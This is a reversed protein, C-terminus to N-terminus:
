PVHHFIAHLAAECLEFWVFKLHNTDVNVGELLEISMDIIFLVNHIKFVEVLEIVWM